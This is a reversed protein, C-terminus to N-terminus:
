INPEACAALVSCAICEHQRFVGHAALALADKAALFRENPTLSLGKVVPAKLRLARVHNVQFGNNHGQGGGASYECQRLRVTTHANRSLDPLTLRAAGGCPSPGFTLQNRVILGGWIRM